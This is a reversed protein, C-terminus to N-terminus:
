FVSLFCVKEAFTAFMLELPYGFVVRFTHPFKPCVVKKVWPPALLVWNGMKSRFHEWNSRKQYWKTVNNSWTPVMKPCALILFFDMIGDTKKSNHCRTEAPLTRGRVLNGFTHGVNGRLVRLCSGPRASHASRNFLKRWNQLLNYFPPPPCRCGRNFSMIRCCM